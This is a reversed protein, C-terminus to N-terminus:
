WIAPPVMERLSADTSIAICRRPRPPTAPRARWCAPSRASSARWKRSWRTRPRGVSKMTMASFWYPIMAGFILVRLHAPEGPVDTEALGSRTVFAGFLALGVLCASGIAFGKGIAATTNGAADLADTVSACTRRSSPCRRSAAPTTASPATCTSPSAPPSTPSCAWRLSRSATCTASCFSIYVVIALLSVPLIASRYGLALGYIINTAAGDRLVAGGRARRTRTPPTTSPSSASSAGPGSGRPRM